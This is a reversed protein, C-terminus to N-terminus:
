TSTMIKKKWEKHAVLIQPSVLAEQHIHDYHFPTPGTTTYSELNQPTPNQKGFIELLHFRFLPRM